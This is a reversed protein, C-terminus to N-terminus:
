KIKDPKQGYWTTSPLAPTTGRCVLPLSTYGRLADCSGVGLGLVLLATMTLDSPRWTLGAMPRDAKGGSRKCGHRASPPVAADGEPATMGLGGSDKGEPRACLHEIRPDSVLPVLASMAGPACQLGGSQMGRMPSQASQKGGSAGSGAAEDGSRSKKVSSSGDGDAGGGALGPRDADEMDHDDADPRVYMDKLRETLFVDKKTAYVTHCTRGDSLKCDPDPDYVIILGDKAMQLLAALLVHSPADPVLSRVDIHVTGGLLESKGIAGLAASTTVQSVDVGEGPWVLSAGAQTQAHLYAAQGKDCFSNELLRMVSVVSPAADTSQRTSDPQLLTIEPEGKIQLAQFWDTRRLAGGAKLRQLFTAYLSTAGGAAETIDEIWIYSLQRGDYDIQNRENRPVDFEVISFITKGM